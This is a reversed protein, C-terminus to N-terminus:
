KHSSVRGPTSPRAADVMAEGERVDVSIPKQVYVDAGAEVAAIAQLAAELEGERALSAAMREGEAAHPPSETFRAIYAM